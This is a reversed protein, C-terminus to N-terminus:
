TLESEIDLITYVRPDCGQSALEREVEDRYIPNMIVVNDPHYDRLFAPGVIRQGTRPLFKGVRYPNIDVVYEVDEHVGLTTLFAVAKSGSGWLVTRLGGAAWNRLRSQWAKRSHTASAAFRSCLRFISAIADEDNCTSHCVLDTPNALIM